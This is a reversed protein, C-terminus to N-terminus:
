YWHNKMDTATDTCGSPQQKTPERLLPLVDKIAYDKTTSYKRHRYSFLSM